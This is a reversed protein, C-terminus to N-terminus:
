GEIAVYKSKEIEKRDKKPIVLELVGHRFNAKIDEVSLVDGVYFSRQCSGCYRERRIYNGNKLEEENAAKNDELNKNASITLYGNELTVSIDEKKFGPLDITMEFEAENEKIDTNMVNKARHGYLKKEINRFDRDNFGFWSDPTFGGFLDFSDNFISPALM